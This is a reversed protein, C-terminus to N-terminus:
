RDDEIAAIGAPTLRILMEGQQDYTVEIHGMAILENLAIEFEDDNM